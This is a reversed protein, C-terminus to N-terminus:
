DSCLSTKNENSIDREAVALALAISDQDEIFVYLQSSWAREAALQAAYVHLPLHAGAWLLDSTSNRPLPNRVGM